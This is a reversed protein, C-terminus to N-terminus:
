VAKLAQYLRHVPLGMVNYFSGQISRIAAAGIWEQIGYAGAKDLPQYQEVYYAIEEPTLDSFQVKTEVSWTQTSTATRITVGTIVTQTNGQLLALMEAAAKLSSPKGLVRGDLIVITDATIVLRRDDPELPYADAKLKSLYVPIDEPFMGEPVCEDVSHSTDVRFDIDLLALLERRRPSGSALVVDYKNLNSLPKFM